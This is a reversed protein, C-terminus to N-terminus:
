AGVAPEVTEFFAPLHFYITNTHSIVPVNGHCEPQCKATEERNELWKKLNPGPREPGETTVNHPCITSVIPPDPPTVGAPCCYQRLHFLWWFLRNLTNLRSSPCSCNVSTTTAASPLCTLHWLTLLLALPRCFKIRGRGSSGTPKCNM